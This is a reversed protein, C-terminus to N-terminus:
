IVFNRGSESVEACPCVVIANSASVVSKKDRPEPGTVSVAAGDAKRGIEVSGTGASDVVIAVGAGDGLLPAKRGMEDVSGPGASDVTPSSALLAAKRGMEDVSRPGASDVDLGTRTVNVVPSALLSAERGM